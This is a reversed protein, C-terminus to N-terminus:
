LCFGYLSVRALLDASVIGERDLHKWEVVVGQQKVVNKIGQILNYHPLLQSELAKLMDIANKTDSELCQM